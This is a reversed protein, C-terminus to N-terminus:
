RRSYLSAGDTQLIAVVQQHAVPVAGDQARRMYVDHQAEMLVRQGTQLAGVLVAYVAELDVTAILVWIDRRIHGEERSDIEWTNVGRGALYSIQTSDLM